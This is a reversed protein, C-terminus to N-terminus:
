SRLWRLWFKLLIMGYAYIQVWINMRKEIEIEFIDLIVLDDVSNL